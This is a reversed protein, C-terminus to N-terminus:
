VDPGPVIHCPRLPHHHCPLDHPKQGELEQGLQRGWPGRVQAQLTLHCSTKLLPLVPWMPGKWMLWATTTELPVIFTNMWLWPPCGPSLCHSRPYTRPFCLLCPSRPPATPPFEGLSISGSCLLHSCFCRSLLVHAAQPYGGCVPLPLLRVQGQEQRPHHAPLLSQVHLCHSDEYSWLWQNPQAARRCQGKRTCRHAPAWQTVTHIEPERPSPHCPSQSSPGVPVCHALPIFPVANVSSPSQGQHHTLSPQAASPLCASTVSPHWLSEQPQRTSCLSTSVGPLPSLPRAQTPALPIILSCTPCHHSPPASRIGAEVPDSLNPFEATAGHRWWLSRFQGGPM